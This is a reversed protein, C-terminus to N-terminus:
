KESRLCNVLPQIYSQDSIDYSRAIAAAIAEDEPSPATERKLKGQMVATFLGMMWRDITPMKEYRLGGPLYFHPIATLEEPTLNNRWLEEITEAATHPMAGVAFVALLRTGTEEALARARKLGDVRGAHCRGGFIMADYQAAIEQTATKLEMLEGDLAQTISRAYDETFGTVSKYCVLIRQKM